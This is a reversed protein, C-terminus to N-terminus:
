SRRSHSSIAPRVLLCVHCDAFPQYSQYRNRNHAEQREDDKVSNLQLGDLFSDSEDLLGLEGADLHKAVNCLPKNVGCRSKRM